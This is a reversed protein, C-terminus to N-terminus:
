ETTNKSNRKKKSFNRRKSWFYNSRKCRRKETTRTGSVEEGTRPSSNEATTTKTNDNLDWGFVKALQKGSLEEKTPKYNSKLGFGHGGKTKVHIRPDYTTKLKKKRM